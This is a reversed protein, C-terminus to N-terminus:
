TYKYVEINFDFCQVGFNWLQISTLTNTNNSWIGSIRRVTGIETSSTIDDASFCKVVKYNNSKGYVLIKSMMSCTGSQVIESVPIFGISTTRIASAVGTDGLLRQYGYETTLSGFVSSTPTNFLMYVSQTAKSTTVRADWLYIMYTGDVDGNLGEISLVSGLSNFNKLEQNYLGVIRTWTGSVESTITDVTEVDDVYVSDWRYVDSGLDYVGSTYELDQNGKPLWDTSGVHQFNANMESSTMTNGTEVKVYAM